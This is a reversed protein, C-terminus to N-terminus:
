QFIEVADRKLVVVLEVNTVSEINRLVNELTHFSSVMATANKQPGLTQPIPFMNVTFSSGSGITIDKIQHNAVERTRGWDLLEELKM